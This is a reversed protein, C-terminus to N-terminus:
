NSSNWDVVFYGHQDDPWWGTGVFVLVSVRCPERSDCDIGHFFDGKSESLVRLGDLYFRRVFDVGHDGRELTRELDSVAREACDALCCSCDLWRTCRLFLEM